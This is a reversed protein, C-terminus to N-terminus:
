SLNTQIPLFFLFHSVFMASYRERSQGEEEEEEQKEEAEKLVRQKTKRVILDFYKKSFFFM